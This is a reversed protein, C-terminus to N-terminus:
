DGFPVRVLNAVLDRVGDEVSHEGLIGVSADGALGRDRFAQADDDSLHSGV